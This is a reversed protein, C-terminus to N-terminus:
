RRPISPKLLPDGFLLYMRTNDNMSGNADTILKNNALISIEGITAEPNAQISAFLNIAFRHNIETYSPKTAALVAIAGRHVPPANEFKAIPELLVMNESQSRTALHFAGTDCAINFIMTLGSGSNEMSSVQAPGFSKGDRGWGSWTAASGHGRYTLIAYGDNLRALVSDNTSDKGGYQLNFSLGLPNSGKRVSEMNATYKGPYEEAHAALMIKKTSYGNKQAALFSSIKDILLKAEAVNAAPIRGLGIDALSDNGSIYAYWSDSPLGNWTFYKVKTEDGVIIVAELNTQRYAAAIEGKIQEATTASTVIKVAFNKDPHLGRLRSAEPELDETTVILVSNEGGSRKATDIYTGNIALTKLM